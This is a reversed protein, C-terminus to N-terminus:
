NASTLQEQVATALAFPLGQGGYAPDTGLTMWGGEVYAAYAERFGAPLTVAGNALTAGGTDGPRNLPAFVGASLKGAEELIADALDPTAAEFRPLRALGPLDAVTELVFRQETVPATYTMP